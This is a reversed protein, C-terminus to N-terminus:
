RTAMSSFQDWVSPNSIMDEYSALRRPDNSRLAAIAPSLSRLYVQAADEFDSLKLTEDPRELALRNASIWLAVIIRPIGASLELIRKNFADDIVLKNRTLQYQSLAGMFAMSFAPDKHDTFFSFQHNGVLSLRQLTALRHGLAGMGDPTGSFVTPWPWSNLSTLIWKLCNDEAISLDAVSPDRTKSRRDQKTRLKFFNQVEDIHLIGLFHTTAVQTWENLAQTPNRFREKSLQQSFRTGSTVRDWEAMLSRALDEARGSAPADVSLWVVQRHPALFPGLNKHEVVQHPYLNLSRRIAETKGCGSPGVVSCACPPLPNRVSPQLSGTISAITGPSKPNRHSYRHRIMMDLSDAVWANVMAPVHLSQLNLLFLIRKSREVELINAPLKPREILKGLKEERSLVPGLSQILVNNGYPDFLDEQM